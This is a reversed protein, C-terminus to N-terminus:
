GEKYKPLPMWAVVKCPQGENIDHCTYFFGGDCEVDGEGTCFAGLDVTYYIDTGDGYSYDSMVVIAVDEAEPPLKESIPIWRNNKKRNEEMKMNTYAKALEEYVEKPITVTGNKNEEVVYSRM